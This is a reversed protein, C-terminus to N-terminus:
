CDRLVILLLTGTYSKDRQSTDRQSLVTFLQPADFGNM